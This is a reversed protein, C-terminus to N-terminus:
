HIGFIVTITVSLEQRGPEVPTAARDAIVSRLNMTESFVVPNNGNDGLESIVLPADLTVGAMRAYEEAKAKANAFAKERARSLVAHPDALSFAIGQVRTANGGAKVAEDIIRSSNDLNRITVEVQNDFHYETIKGPPETAYNPFLSLSRTQIDKGDVGSDKVAKILKDMVVAAQQRAADATKARIDVNLVLSAQDPAVSVKGIGQVQISRPPNNDMNGAAANAIATLALFGMLLPQMIRHYRLCFLFNCLFNM